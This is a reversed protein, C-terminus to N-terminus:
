RHWSVVPGPAFGFLVNLLLVLVILALIAVAIKSFPEPLALKGLFWWCVYAILGLVIVYILLGFLGTM